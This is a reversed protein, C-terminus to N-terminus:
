KDAALEWFAIASAAAVNLSDVGHFMPIKVTHDCCQLLEESIGNAENGLVIALKKPRKASIEDISVTDARLAFGAMEFGLDRIQEPREAVTWPIQFVTGMSVRIARRYLPDTCGKTLVVAEIGLAAANRFIAGVNTPNEVDALVAIRRCGECIQKLLPLKKRRMACLVGRTLPFGAISKLLEEEGTYVPFDCNKGKWQSLMYLVKEQKGTEVLMSFPEYGAKYARELVLETEAIFLGPEPEFFHMLRSETREQYIKLEPIDLGTIQIVEM